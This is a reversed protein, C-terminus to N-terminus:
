ARQMLKETIRQFYRLDMASNSAIIRGIVGFPSSKHTVIKHKVVRVTIDADHRYVLRLLEVGDTVLQSGSKRVRQDPRVVILRRVDDDQARRAEPDGRGPATAIAVRDWDDRRLPM